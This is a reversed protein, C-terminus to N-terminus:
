TCDGSLQRRQNRGGLITYDNRMDKRMLVDQGDRAGIKLIM